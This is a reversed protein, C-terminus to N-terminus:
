FGKKVLAEESNLRHLCRSRMAIQRFPYLTRKTSGTINKIGYHKRVEADNNFAHDAQAKCMEHISPEPRSRKKRPKPKVEDVIANGDYNDLFLMLAKQILEASPRIEEQKIEEMNDGTQNHCENTFVEFAESSRLPM